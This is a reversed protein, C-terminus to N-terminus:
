PWPCRSPSCRGGPTGRSRSVRARVARCRPRGSRPRVDGGGGRRRLGRGSAQARARNGLRPAHVERKESLNWRRYWRHFWRRVGRRFRRMISAAEGRASGHSSKGDGSDTAGGFHDAEHLVVGLAGAVEDSLLPSPPGLPSLAQLPGRLSGGHLPDAVGRCDNQTRSRGSRSTRTRRRLASRTKTGPAVTNGPPATSGPSTGAAASSPTSSNRAAAARSHRSSHPM